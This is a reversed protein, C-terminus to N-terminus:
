DEVGYVYIGIYKGNVHISNVHRHAFERYSSIQPTFTWGKQNLKVETKADGAGSDIDIITIKTDRSNGITMIDLLEAVNM